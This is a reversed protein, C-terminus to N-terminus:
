DSIGLNRRLKACIQRLKAWIWGIKGLFNTSPTTTADGAGIASEL